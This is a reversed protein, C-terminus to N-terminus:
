VPSTPQARIAGSVKGRVMARALRAFDRGDADAQRARDFAKLEGFRRQDDYNGDIKSIVNRTLNAHFRM